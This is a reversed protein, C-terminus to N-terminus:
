AFVSEKGNLQNVLMDEVAQAIKNVDQGAAAYVPITIDGVNVTNTNTTNTTSMSAPSATFHNGLNLNPMAFNKASGGGASKAGAGAAGSMAAGVGARAKEAAAILAAAAAEVEPLMAMLGDALSQGISRGMDVWGGTEIGSRITQIVAQTLQRGADTVRSISSKMGVVLGEGIYVGVQQTLTSPSRVGAGIKAGDIGREGLAVGGKYVDGESSKMGVVEGEGLNKGIDMGKTKNQKQAASARANSTTEWTTWLASGFQEYNSQMASITEAPITAAKEFLQSAKALEQDSMSIFAAVYNAGEPGMKALEQLLGESVGRKSLEQMNSSWSEMNSVQDDMNKLVEDKTVTNQQKLEEFLNVQSSVSREVADSLEDWSSSMDDTAQDIESAMQMAADGNQDMATSSEDLRGVIDSEEAGLEELRDKMEYLPM